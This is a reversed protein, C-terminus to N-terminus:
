ADTLRHLKTTLEAVQARLKANLAELARIKEFHEGDATADVAPGALFRIGARTPERWVIQARCAIGKQPISIDFIEPLTVTGALNLRAGTASIQMVTCTTSIAGNSYSIHAQLFIRERLAIRHDPPQAPQQATM